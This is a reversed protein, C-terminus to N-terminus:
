ISPNHLMAAVLAVRQRMGDTLHGVRQRLPQDFAVVELLGQIRTGAISPDLRRLSAAFRLNQEVSLDNYLTFKQSMYGVSKKIEILNGTSADVGAVVVRGESPRLLGCLVRLTTTKGAGNAGLLGFIEGSDVRFSVNRVASFSGFRM